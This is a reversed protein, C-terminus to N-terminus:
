PIKITAFFTNDGRRVLLAMVDGSKLNSITKEFEKISHVDRRNVQQILDGQRLGAEDAAGGSSVEAVVVGTENEYGLQRAIEPTLDLLALGMRGGPRTEPRSVPKREADQPRESLTASLERRKGDRILIIHVNQGPSAHAIKNRLSISNEVPEGDLELIIDGRQIGAKEAAGGPSVDGVLVGAPTDIKLARALDETIDQPTIGLYGRTVKGKSILQEMVQRAMNIPIAFGIGINGGSPNLIATNIGIVRGELDALAGGSNGPNISADTQIFDEYEALGMSSRGKASIIGATVTHMLQFPNGVAIVWQGVKVSDSNGLAAVPLDAAEIRIVAVDTSPDTGVLAASFNRNDGTVVSLKDAGAVVHNNTLIYGDQSIIVGSGLSRVTRKQEQPAEQGFFRQFFDDGFFQRFADDPMGYPNQNVVTQEAFISVISRNIRASAAEFADSIRGMLDRTQPDAAQAAAPPPNAPFDKPTEAGNPVLFMGGLFGLGIFLIM